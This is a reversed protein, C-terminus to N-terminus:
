LTVHPTPNRFQRCGYLLHLATTGYNYLLMSAEPYAFVATSPLFSHSSSATTDHETDAILTLSGGDTTNEAECDDLTLASKAGQGSCRGNIASPVTIGRTATSSSGANRWMTPTDRAGSELLLGLTSQHQYKASQFKPEFSLAKYLVSSPDEYRPQHHCHMISLCGFPPQHHYHVSSPGEFRFRPHCHM